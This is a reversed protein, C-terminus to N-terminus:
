SRRDGYILFSLFKLSTDLSPVCLSAANVVSLLNPMAQQWLLCSLFYIFTWSDSKKLGALSPCHYSDNCCGINLGSSSFSNITRTYSEQKLKCSLIEYYKRTSARTGPISFVERTQLPFNQWPCTSGFFSYTKNGLLFTSVSKAHTIFHM